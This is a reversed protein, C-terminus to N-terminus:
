PLSRNMTSSKFQDISGVFLGHVMRARRARPQGRRVHPTEPGPSSRFRGPIHRPRIIFTSREAIQARYVWAAITSGIALVTTTVAAAINAGALWPNRKCWRWLRASSPVPRTKVPRGEIFRRLEDRLEAATAYREAPDKALARAVIAALDPHVQRDIQRLPTPQDHEIQSLLQHPDSDEFIPRLALFEYLTVGLAYIDDRGDSKGQFREPAMFRLTGAFAQATSEADQGEGQKLKALGLDTIWANGSPDLLINHPKIVRHIAGRKHAHNLADAVQAGIRAIERHYRVSSRGSWSSGALGSLSSSAPLGRESEDSDPLRLPAQATQGGRGPDTETVDLGQSPQGAAALDSGTPPRPASPFAGRLLGLSVSRLETDSVPMGRTPSGPENGSGADAEVGTEDADRMLRKVDEFVRALSHGTIFPMAYYCIGEHEGYDFVSVINTHHLGAASRAERLFWRLYDAHSRFKPHMVKLAVRSRLSEREAEYVIGMGGGGIPRVIRYDGLREPIPHSGPGPHPQPGDGVGSATAGTTLPSAAAGGEVRRSRDDDAPGQRELEVLAPLLGYIDEALEPYRDAYEKLSPREGRRLRALFSELVGGLPDPGSSDRSNMTM